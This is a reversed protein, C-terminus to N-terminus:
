NERQVFCNTRTNGKFLLSNLQSAIRMEMRNMESSEEKNEERYKTHQQKQVSLARNKSFVSIHSQTMEWWISCTYGEASAKHCLAKKDEVSSIINLSYCSQVPNTISIFLKQYACPTCSAQCSPVTTSAGADGAHFGSQM